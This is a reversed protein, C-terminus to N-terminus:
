GNWTKVYVYFIKTVHPGTQVLKNIAGAQVPKRELGSVEPFASPGILLTKLGHRDLFKPTTDLRVANVRVSLGLHLNGVGQTAKYILGSGGKNM